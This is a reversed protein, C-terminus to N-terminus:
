GADELPLSSAQLLVPRPKTTWHSFGKLRFRYGPNLERLLRAIKSVHHDAHYTTVAIQPHHERITRSAGELVALDAGEADIKILDKPSLKLQNEKLYDDLRVATADAKSPAGECREIRCADPNETAVLMVPGSQDSAALSEVKLQNEVHNERAARRILQAMTALPEFCVIRDCRKEKLLRLAFLGECAGVDIGRSEPHLQIPPTIYCHPNSSDLEQEILFYLNNDIRGSWYFHLPHELLRIRHLDKGLPQIDAVQQLRRGARRYAFRSPLIVRGIQLMADSPTFFGDKQLQLWWRCCHWLQTVPNKM